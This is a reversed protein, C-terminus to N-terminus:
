TLGPLNGVLKILLPKLFFLLIAAGAAVFLLFRLLGLLGNGFMKLMKM